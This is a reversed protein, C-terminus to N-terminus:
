RALLEELLVKTCVNQINNDNVPAEVDNVDHCCQNQKVTPDGKFDKLVLFENTEFIGFPSAFM